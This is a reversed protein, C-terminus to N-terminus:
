AVTDRLDAEIHVIPGQGGRYVLEPHNKMYIVYLMVSRPCSYFSVYQGVFLDPHSTLMLDTLRRQKVGRMGIMTGLRPNAALREVIEADCRLFGDSIISPLRDVHVIHYIMPNAPPAM